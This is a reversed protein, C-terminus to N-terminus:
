YLGGNVDFIAGHVHRARDSALFSVVSAIDEPEAIRHLPTRDVIKTREEETSNLNLIPTNTPGPAVCNIRVGTGALEAALHRVLGILGYKSSTYHAGNAVSKTRGAISSIVVVSGSGRDIMGSLAAKVCLMTGTVNVDFVRDWSEESINLFPEQYGVAASTILVDAVGARQRVTEFAAEIAAADSVDVRLPVWRGDSDAPVPQEEAIDMGFVTDGGILYGSATAQGIGSNSGTIVVVRQGQTIM